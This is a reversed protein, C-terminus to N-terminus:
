ANISRAASICRFVAIVMGRVQERLFHAYVPIIRLYCKYERKIKNARLVVYHFYFTTHAILPKDRLSM